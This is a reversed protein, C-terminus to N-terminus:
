HDNRNQAWVIAHSHFRSRDRRCDKRPCTSGTQAALICILKLVHAIVAISRVTNTIGEKFQVIQILESRERWEPQISFVLEKATEDSKRHDYSLDIYALEPSDGNAAQAGM